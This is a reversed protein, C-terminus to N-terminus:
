SLQSRHVTHLLNLLFQSYMNETPTNGTVSRASVPPDILQPQHTVDKNILQSIQARANTEQSSSHTSTSLRKQERPADLIRAQIAPVPSASSVYKDHICLPTDFHIKHSSKGCRDETPPEWPVWREGVTRSPTSSQLLSKNSPKKDIHKRYDHRANTM